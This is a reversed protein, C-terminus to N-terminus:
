KKVPIKAAVRQRAHRLAIEYIQKLDDETVDVYTKMERLAARMDEGELLPCDQKESM